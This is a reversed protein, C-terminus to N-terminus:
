GVNHHVAYATPPSHMIYWSNDASIHQMASAFHM